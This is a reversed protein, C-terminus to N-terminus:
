AKREQPERWRLQTQKSRKMRGVMSRMMAAQQSPPLAAAVTHPYTAEYVTLGRTGAREKSLWQTSKMTAARALFLIFLLELLMAYCLLWDFKLTVLTPWFGIYVTYIRYKPLPIVLYVTM